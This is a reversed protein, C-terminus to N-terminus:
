LGLIHAIFVGPIWLCCGLLFGTRNWEKKGEKYGKWYGVDYGEDYGRNYAEKREEPSAKEHMRSILAELPSEKSVKPKEENAKSYIKTNYKDSFYGLDNTSELALAASAFCIISVSILFLRLKM